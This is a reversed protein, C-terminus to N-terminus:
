AQSSFVEVRDINDENIINDYRNLYKKTITEGFFGAAASNYDGTVIASYVDTITSVVGATTHAIKGGVKGAPLLQVADAAYGAYSAIVEPNDEIYKETKLYEQEVQRGLNKVGAQFYPNYILLVPMIFFCYKFDTFRIM